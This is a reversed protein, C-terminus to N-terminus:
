VESIYKADAKRIKYRIDTKNKVYDGKVPAEYGWSFIEKMSPQVEKEAKKVGFVESTAEPQLTKM